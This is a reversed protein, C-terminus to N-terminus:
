PVMCLVIDMVNTGTPGTKILAADAHARRVHDYQTFFTYADNNQLHSLANLNSADAFRVTNGDVVAGTADTPGDTGDTGASLVVVERFAFDTSLELAAALALEQNRGGKGSGKIQVTTEGGAIICAPRPIWGFKENEDSLALQKGISAFVKAVERAEGELRTTLVIPNYGLARAEDCAAVLSIENSAIICESTNKFAAHDAKPTEPLLQAAGNLLHDLVERPLQDQLGYKDVIDLCDQYTSSDPVTPGSAIVDLPDGIVDSVVLSLVTAPQCAAALRGGTVASVHKRLANMEHIGAGSSLLTENLVQVMKLTLGKAPATLLASGGGSILSVVLTRRDLDSVLSLLRSTGDVCAEDPVPHAAETVSIPCGELDFGVTHGYKTIVLGTVDCSVTPLPHDPSLILAQFCSTRLKVACAGDTILDAFLDQTAMVMPIAAKGAGVVIVRDFATMDLTQPCGKVSLKSGRLSVANRLAVAPNAAKVARHFIALADRRTASSMLNHM